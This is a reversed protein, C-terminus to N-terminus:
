EGSGPASELLWKVTEIFKTRELPKSIHWNAGCKELAKVKDEESTKATLMVVPVHQLAGSAKIETCTEWGNLGPMMVDLLILDPVTDKLLEMASEGSDAEIVSYGEKELMKRIVFRIDPEDDVVMIRSM